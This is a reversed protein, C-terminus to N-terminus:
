PTVITVIRAGGIRLGDPTTSTIDFVHVSGVPAEANLAIDITATAHGGPRLLAKIEKGRGFERTDVHAHAPALHSVQIPTPAAEPRPSALLLQAKLLSSAARELTTLDYPKGLPMHDIRPLELTNAVLGRGIIQNREAVGLATEEARQTVAVVVEVERERYPNAVKLPFKLPRAAGAPLPAVAINCQGQRPDNVPDLYGTSVPNGQTPKNPNGAYCNAALCVHGDGPAGTNLNLLADNANPTWTTLSPINVANGAPITTPSGHIPPTPDPGGASAINSDPGVGGMSFDSVWTQVHVSDVAKSSLNFVQAVITYPQNVKAVTGTNGQADMLWLATSNWFAVGAPIPRTGNDGNTYPILLGTYAM